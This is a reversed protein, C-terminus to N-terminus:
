HVAGSVIAAVRRSHQDVVVLKDQITLYQDGWFGNMIEAIEPPLDALAVKDPIASGIMLEFGAQDQHPNNTGALVREIQQRQEATLQLNRSTAKLQRARGGTSDELGAPDSKGVVSEANQQAPKGTGIGTTAAPPKPDVHRSIGIYTATALGGLLVVGAVAAGLVVVSGQGSTRINGMADSGQDHLMAFWSILCQEPALYTFESNLDAIRPDPQM